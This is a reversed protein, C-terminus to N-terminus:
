DGQNEDGGGDDCGADEALDVLLWVLHVGEFGACLFVLQLVVVKSEFYTAANCTYSGIVLLLLLGGPLWFGFGSLLM